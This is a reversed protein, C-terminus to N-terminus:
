AELHFYPEVTGRLKVTLPQGRRDLARGAAVRIWGESVCYEEVDRRENGNFRIGIGRNMAAENYHPSRPDNSLHDPPTDTMADSHPISVARLIGGGAAPKV